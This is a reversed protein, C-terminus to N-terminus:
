KGTSGFGGRRIPRSVVRKRVVIPTRPSIDSDDDSPVVRSRSNKEGISEDSVKNKEEPESDFHDSAENKEVSESESEINLGGKETKKVEPESESQDADIIKEVEPESESEINLGGKKTEKVEPESESLDSLDAIVKKEEPESESLDPLDVITRKVEPEPRSLDVDITKKAEPESLEGDSESENIDDIQKCDGDYVKIIVLQAIRDGKNYDFHSTFNRLIVHVDGRYDSDIVGAMKCICNNKALGSRAEIIGVYGPPIKVKFRMNIMAQDNSPVRGNSPAYLDYGASGMTARTPMRGGNKEDVEFRLM